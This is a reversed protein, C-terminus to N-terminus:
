EEETPQDEDIYIRDMEDEIIVDEKKGSDM